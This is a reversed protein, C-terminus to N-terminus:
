LGLVRALYAESLAARFRKTKISGKRSEKRLLNRAIHRIVAM